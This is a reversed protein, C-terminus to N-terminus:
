PVELEIRELLLEDGQVLRVPTACPACRLLAGPAAPAGCRPCEWRAEVTRLELEAGACITRERFAAYATRLLAPDVGALEGLAVRVRVVASAGRARAHAEVGQLLAQVVSYEHM